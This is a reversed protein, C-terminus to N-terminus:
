VTAASAATRIGVEAEYTSVIGAAVMAATRAEAAALVAAHLRAYKTDEDATWPRLMPGFRPHEVRPDARRQADVGERYAQIEAWADDAARQAAAVEDPIEAM